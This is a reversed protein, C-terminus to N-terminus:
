RGGGMDSGGSDDRCCSFPPIGKAEAPISRAGASEPYRGGGIAGVDIRSGEGEAVGVMVVVVVEVVEELTLLVPPFKGPGEGPVCPPTEEEAALASKLKSSSSSSSSKSRGGSGSEM